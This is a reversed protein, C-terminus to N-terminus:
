PKLLFQPCVRIPSANSIIILLTTSKTTSLFIFFYPIPEGLFDSLFASSSIPAHSNLMTVDTPIIITLLARMAVWPKVKPIQNKKWNERFNTPNLAIWKGERKNQLEETRNPWV